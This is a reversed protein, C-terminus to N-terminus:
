RPLNNIAAAINALSDDDDLSITKTKSGSDKGGNSSKYTPADALIRQIVAWSVGWM